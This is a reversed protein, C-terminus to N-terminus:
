GPSQRPVAPLFGPSLRPPTIAGMTVPGRGGALETSRCDPYLLNQTEDPPLSCLEFFATLTTRRNHPDNLINDRDDNNPRFQVQQMDPLHLALCTVSPYMVHLPFAFIRWMAECASIYRAELFEKIEDRAPRPIPNGLNDREITVCARDHGKYIYKYLYKVSMISTAIQVNIHCNYKQLLYLNHCSM